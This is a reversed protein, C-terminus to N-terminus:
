GDIYFEVYKCNNCFYACLKYEVKGKFFWAEPYKYTVLCTTIQRGGHCNDIPRAKIVGKSECKVCTKNIM